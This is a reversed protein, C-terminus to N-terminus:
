FSPAGALLLLGWPGYMLARPGRKWKVGEKLIQRPQGGPRRVLRGVRGRGKGLMRMSTYRKFRESYLFANEQV